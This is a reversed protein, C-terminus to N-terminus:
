FIFDVVLCKLVNLSMRKIWYNERDQLRQKLVETSTNKIKDLKEILIFKGHKHFVHNCNNFHRCAKIADPNKMDKRHNNLRIYFPTESKGVYQIKCLLSELLYIVYNRECSIKHYINFKEKTQISEFITTAILQQSSLCRSTNCQNCKEKAVNQKVKLRKQNHSITNTSIIQRQKLLTNKCFAIVPTAKFVNEFANNINLM